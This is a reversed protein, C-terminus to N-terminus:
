YSGATTKKQFYARGFLDLLKRPSLLQNLFCLSLLSAPPYLASPKLLVKLPTDDALFTSSNIYSHHRSLIHSFFFKPTLAAGRILGDQIAPSADPLSKSMLHGQHPRCFFCDRRHPLRFVTRLKRHFKKPGSFPRKFDLLKDGM